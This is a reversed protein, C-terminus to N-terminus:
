NVQCMRCTVYPNTITTATGSGTSATAGSLTHTHATGSGTSKLTAPVSGVESPNDSAAVGEYLQIPHTHASENAATLTGVAHTHVPLNATAITVTDSGGTTGQTANVRLFKDSYTATVDTSGTPCSGTIMFFVAGSPLTFGVSPINAAPIVGAGSPISALGTLGTGSVKGATSITALKTDVIAASDSINDNDLANVTNTLGQIDVNLKTATITEGTVWSQQQTYDAGYVGSHIFFLTILIGIVKRFM